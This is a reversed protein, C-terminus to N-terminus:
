TRVVIRSWDAPGNILPEVREILWVQGWSGEPYLRVARTETGFPAPGNGTTRISCPDPPFEVPNM